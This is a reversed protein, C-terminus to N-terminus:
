VRATTILPKLPHAGKYPCVSAVALMFYTISRESNAQCGLLLAVVDFEDNGSLLSRRHWM